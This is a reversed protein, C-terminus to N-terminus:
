APETGSLKAFTRLEHDQTIIHGASQTSLLSPQMISGRKGSDESTRRPAYLRGSGSMDQRSSNTMVHCSDAAQSPLSCITHLCGWLLVGAIVLLLICCTLWVGMALEWGARDHGESSDSPTSFVQCQDRVPNAAQCTVCLFYATQPLLNALHTSTQSVPIREEHMFSKRKYGMLLSNWNPDYMVSYFTDLCSPSSPWSVRASTASINYVAVGM